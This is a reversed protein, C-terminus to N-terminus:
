SHLDKPKEPDWPWKYGVRDAGWGNFWGVWSSVGLGVDAACHPCHVRPQPGQFQARVPSNCSSWGLFGARPFVSGLIISFFFLALAVFINMSISNIIAFLQFCCFYLSIYHGLYSLSILRSLFSFQTLEQFQKYSFITWLFPLLVYVQADMSVVHLSKAVIRWPPWTYCM